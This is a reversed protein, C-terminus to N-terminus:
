GDGLLKALHMPGPSFLSPDMEIVEKAVAPRYEMKELVDRDLDAGPALEILELGAPTLRFVARETVYSVEKGFKLAQRGSFFNKYVRRVFKKVEGDRAIKLKGGDVSIKPERATFAGAFYIRPSGGAIVPFGGPGYIRGPLTSPNVDGNKGVQLFGLSAADIIGGEFNSFMDPMTSLAFPGVAAGFDVGPLAMGGWQGSEVVTVIRDELGESVALRSVLAPIGIGLNVIYPAGKRKAAEALGVLVRRAIVLEVPDIPGQEMRQTPKGSSCYAHDYVTSGVQWHYANPSVVVMDVLPGPVEVARPHADGRNLNRVQAIVVGPSPHAKTAQAMSLVTGRIAEDEMTLNARRDATSARVLAVNPKPAEYLLYEQGGVAIRKVTCTNRAAALRNAKGGGKRPDIATDIGIKSIVGPRGSAVERFWYAAVGMPWSYAEVVNDSVIKQLWPSFGLFPVSIGRMFRGDERQSLDKAVVDLGRDPIAPLADTIVFLNNPHGTKLYQRHLELILYEPTNAMNFGSIAVVSGDKVTSVADAATCVGARRGEPGGAARTSSVM